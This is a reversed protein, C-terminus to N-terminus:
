PSRPRESNHVAVPVAISAAVVGAILLPSGLGMGLTGLLEGQGRVMDRGAVVLVGKQAAPPAQGPAWLRYLGHGEAAKVQYIGGGLGRVAFYGRDDTRAKAIEQGQRYVSVPANKAAAGQANVVQGVLLGGDSLAVDILHPVKASSGGAAFAAQPLCFGAVALSVMLGKVVTTGKM